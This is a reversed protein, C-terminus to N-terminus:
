HVSATPADSEAQAAKTLSRAKPTSRQRRAKPASTPLALGDIRRGVQLGNVKSGLDSVRVKQGYAALQANMAALPTGDEVLLDGGAFYINPLAIAQDLPLGFDLVGVLTKTVHM